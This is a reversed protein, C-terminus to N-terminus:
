IAKYDNLCLHHLDEQMSDTTEWGEEATDGYHLAAYGYRQNQTSQRPCVRRLHGTRHCKSCVYERFRCNEYNHDDAGCGICDRRKGSDARAANRGRPTITARAGRAGSWVAGTGRIRYGRAGRGSRTEAAQRRENTAVLSHIGGTGAITEGGSAADAIDVAAANREAAELSTAIKVAHAFNLEEDEAFLRQRIIDSKLGCVFQDRLNENLNDGLKCHRTLKKLEAVYSAINEDAAQRRQRFRFREALASPAPQLHDRLLNVAVEYELESPKRPSALNVLLEYAEDGIVAILTPLKLDNKVSNATFYMELREIYSSWAGTRIDFESVRGISM